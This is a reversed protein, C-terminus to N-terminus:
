ALIATEYECAGKSFTYGFLIWPFCDIGYV